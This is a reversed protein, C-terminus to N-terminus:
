QQIQNAARFKTRGSTFKGAAQFNNKVFNVNQIKLCLELNELDLCSNYTPIRGRSKEANYSKVKLIVFPNSFKM